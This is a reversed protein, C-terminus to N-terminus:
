RLGGRVTSDRGLMWCAATKMCRRRGSAGGADSGGGDVGCSWLSSRSSGVAFSGYRRVLVDRVGGGGVHM